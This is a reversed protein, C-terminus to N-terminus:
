SDGEAGAEHPQNYLEAVRGLADLEEGNGCPCEGKGPEGYATEDYLQGCQNCRVCGDEYRLKTM